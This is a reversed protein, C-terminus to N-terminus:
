TRHDISLGGMDQGIPRYKLWVSIGIMAELDGEQNLVPESQM